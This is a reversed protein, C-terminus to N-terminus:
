GAGLRVVALRSGVAALLTFLTAGNSLRTNTMRQTQGPLLSLESLLCVQEWNVGSVSVSKLCVVLRNKKRRRRTYLLLSSPGEVGKFPEWPRTKNMEWKNSNFLVKM